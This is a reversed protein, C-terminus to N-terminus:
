SKKLISTTVRTLNLRFQSKGRRFTGLIEGSTSLTGRYTGSISRAELQLENDKVIVTTAPIQMRDQDVDTFVATATGDAARSLKLRVPKGQGNLAGEWVGEFKKPLTSSAPPVKVNATGSRKFHFEPQGTASTVKGSINGSDASLRGDFTYKEPISVTFRLATGNAVIGNVPVDVINSNLFTVSGIWRGKPNKALDLTLNYERDPLKINGQWHGTADQAAQALSVASILVIAVVRAIM